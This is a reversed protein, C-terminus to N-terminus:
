FLSLQHNARKIVQYGRIELEELDIFHDNEASYWRGVGRIENYLQLTLQTGSPWKKAERVRFKVDPAMSTGPSIIDGPFIEM